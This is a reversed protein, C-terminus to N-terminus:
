WGAAEVLAMAVKVNDAHSAKYIGGETPRLDWAALTFISDAGPYGNKAMPSTDIAYWTGDIRAFNWAHNGGGLVMCPIGAASMVHKTVGAFSGCLGTGYAGSDISFSGNGYSYHSVIMECCLKAKQMQTM